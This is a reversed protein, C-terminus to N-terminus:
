KQTAESDSTILMVLARAPETASANKSTIDNAVASQAWTQGAHYVGVGAHWAQAQISGSLVHVLVYGSGPSRHLIASGGPQYDILYTSLVPGRVNSARNLEVLRVTANAGEPHDAPLFQLAMAPNVGSVIANNGFAGLPTILALLGAAAILRAGAHRKAIKPKRALPSLFNRTHSIKGPQLVAEAGSAGPLHALQTL